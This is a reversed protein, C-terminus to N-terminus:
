QNDKSIGEVKPWWSRIENPQLDFGCHETCSQYIFLSVADRYRTAALQAYRSLLTKFLSIAEEKSSYKVVQTLAKIEQLIDAITDITLTDFSISPSTMAEESEGSRTVQLEDASVSKERSGNVQSESKIRGMLDHSEISDNQDEQVVSLIQKPEKQGFTNTIEARYLLLTGIAYYAAVAATIITLFEQWSISELM